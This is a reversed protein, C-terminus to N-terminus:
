QTISRDTTIKQKRHKKKKPLLCFTHYKETLEQRRHLMIAILVTNKFMSRIIFVKEIVIFWVIRLTAILVPPPSAGPSLATIRATTCAATPRPHSHTPM